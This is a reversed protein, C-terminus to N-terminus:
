VGGLEVYEGYEPYKAAYQKRFETRMHSCRQVSLPIALKRGLIACAFAKGTEWEHPDGDSSVDIGEGLCDQLICLCAVVIVDYPKRATKCFWENRIPEKGMRFNEHCDDGVGNFNFGNRLLPNGEGSWNALPTLSNRIVKRCERLAREYDAKNIFAGFNWYHTYGM